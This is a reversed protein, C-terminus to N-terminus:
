RITPRARGSAKPQRASGSRGQERIVSAMAAALRGTQNEICNELAVELSRKVLRERLATDTLSQHMAAALAQADGPPVLLGAAGDQLLEPVGGVRTAVVPLGQSMAEPIVSPTGESFSPLVFTDGRGLAVFFPEGPPVRGHWTVQGSIGLRAAHDEMETRMPGTGIVDLHANMRRAVLAFAELLVIVGKEQSLRGLYTVVPPSGVEARRRQVVQDRRITCANTIIANRCRSGYEELLAKSVYSALDARAAIKKCHSAIIPAIWKLRPLLIPITERPNGIFHAVVIQGRRVSHYALSPFTAPMRLFVVDASRVERRLAFFNGLLLMPWHGVKHVRRLPGVFRVTCHGVHSPLALFQSTDQGEELLERRAWVVFEGIEPIQEIIYAFPCQHPLAAFPRGQPDIYMRDDTVWLFKM